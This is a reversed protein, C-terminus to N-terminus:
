SFFHFPKKGFLSPQRVLAGSRVKGDKMYAMNVRGANFRGGIAHIDLRDEGRLFYLSIQAGEGNWIDTKEVMVKMDDQDVKMLGEFTWELVVDSTDGGFTDIIQIGPGAHLFADRDIAKEVNRAHPVLREALQSLAPLFQDLGATKDRKLMSSFIQAAEEALPMAVPIDRIEISNIM